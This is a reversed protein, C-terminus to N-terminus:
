SSSFTQSSHTTVTDSRSASATSALVLCYDPEDNHNLILVPLIVAERKLAADRVSVNDGETEIGPVEKPQELDEENQETDSDVTARKSPSM